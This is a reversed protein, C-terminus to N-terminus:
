SPPSFGSAKFAERMWLETRAPDPKGQPDSLDKALRRAIEVRQAPTLYNVTDMFCGPPFGARVCAYNQVAQKADELDALTRDHGRSEALLKSGDNELTVLVGVWKDRLRKQAIKDIKADIATQLPHQHIQNLRVAEWGTTCPDPEAAVGWASLVLWFCLTRRM